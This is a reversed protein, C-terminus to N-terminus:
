LPHIRIYKVLYVKVQFKGAARIMTKGAASIMTKGAARIM